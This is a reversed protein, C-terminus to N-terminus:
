RRGSLGAREASVCKAPGTIRGHIQREGANKGHQFAFLDLNAELREVSEVVHIEIQRVGIQRQAIEAFGCLGEFRARQLDARPKNELGLWRRLDIFSKMVEDSIMAAENVADKACSLAERVERSASFWAAFCFSSACGFTGSASSAASMQLP